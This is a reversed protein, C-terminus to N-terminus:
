ITVVILYNILKILLQCLSINFASMFVLVFVLIFCYNFSFYLRSNYGLLGNLATRKQEEEIRSITIKMKLMFDAIIKYPKIHKRKRYAM